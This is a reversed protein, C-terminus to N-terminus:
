NMTEADEQTSPHRVESEDEYDTGTEEPHWIDSGAALAHDQEQSPASSTTEGPSVPGAEGSEKSIATDGETSANNTTEESTVSM